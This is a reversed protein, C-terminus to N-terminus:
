LLLFSIEQIKIGTGNIKLNVKRVHIYSYTDIRTHHHLQLHYRRFKMLQFCLRCEEYPPARSPSKKLIHRLSCSKKLVTRLVLVRNNENKNETKIRTGTTAKEENRKLCQIYLYFYSFLKM